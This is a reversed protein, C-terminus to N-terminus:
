LWGTQNKEEEYQPRKWTGTSNVLQIYQPDKVPIIM